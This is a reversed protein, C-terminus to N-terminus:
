SGALGEAVVLTTTYLRPPHAFLRAFLPHHTDSRDVLAIFASTDVYGDTGKVM